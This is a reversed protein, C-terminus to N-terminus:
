AAKRLSLTLGDGISLGPRHQRKADEVSSWASVKRGDEAAIYSMASIVHSCGSRSDNRPRYSAWTCQCQAGHEHVTVQYVEGSNGSLVDFTNHDTRTVHHKRSKLQISKANRIPM